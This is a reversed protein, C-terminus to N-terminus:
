VFPGEWAKKRWGFRYKVVNMQQDLTVDVGFPLKKNYWFRVDSWRVEYGHPNQQYTVHVRQAFQLFARVGDIHMTAQIIPHAETKPYEEELIIHTGIIRGAYFENETEFVFLWHFWQLTPVVQCTGIYSFQKKVYMVLVQHYIAKIVIYGLSGGYVWPFLLTPQWGFGQWLVLGLSHVIFLFPDFISLIDLHIWEKVMPRLSQVGYANLTDLIVHLLISLFTWAYITFWHGQLDFTWMLPVSIVAPWIFLALVSHTIGRHYRIYSAFGKIRILADLDPAHSGVLTGVLVATAVTPNEAVVPDLYALGALTAGFLLHSATDM